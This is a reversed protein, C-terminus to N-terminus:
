HDADVQLLCRDEPDDTQVQVSTDRQLRQALSDAFWSAGACLRERSGEHSCTFRATLRGAEEFVDVVVGPLQAGDLQIQVGRRGSSGDGVLLRRAMQNLTHELAAPPEPPATAAPRSAAEAPAPHFLDFPSAAPPAPTKEAPATGRQQNLLERLAKGQDSLQQESRGDTDGAAGGQTNFANGSPVGVDLHIPRESRM